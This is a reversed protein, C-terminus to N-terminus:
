PHRREQDRNAMRERIEALRRRGLERLEEDSMRGLSRAPERGPVDRPPTRYLQEREARAEALSELFAERDPNM